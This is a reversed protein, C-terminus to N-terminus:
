NACPQPFPTSYDPPCSGDSNRKRPTPKSPQSKHVWKKAAGSQGANDARENDQSSDDTVSNDDVFHVSGLFQTAKPATIRSPQAIVSQALIFCLLACYTITKM